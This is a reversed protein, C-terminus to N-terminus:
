FFCINKREFVEKNFQNSNINAEISNFLLRTESLRSLEKQNSNTYSFSAPAVFLFNNMQGAVNRSNGSPTHRSNLRNFRQLLRIDNLYTDTEKIRYNENMFDSSNEFPQSTMDNGYFTHSPHRNMDNLLLYDFEGGTADLEITQLVGSLYNRSRSSIAPMSHRSNERFVNALIALQILTEFFYRKFDKM